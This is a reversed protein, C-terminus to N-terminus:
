SFKARPWIDKQDEGKEIDAKKTGLAPIDPRSVAPQKKPDNPLVSLQQIPDYVLTQERVAARLRKSLKVLFPKSM